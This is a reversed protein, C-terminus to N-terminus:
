TASTHDSAMIIATEANSQVSNRGHFRCFARNALPLLVSALWGFNDSAGGRWAASSMQHHAYEKPGYIVLRSGQPNVLGGDWRQARGFLRQKHM